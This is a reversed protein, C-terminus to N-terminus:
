PLMFKEIIEAVGDHNNDRTTVYNGHSKISEDANQMVVGIAAAEIMSIDNEADGAAITNGLPIGLHTCLATMANGKSVGAPIHELYEDCSFIREMKGEMWVVTEECFHQLAEEKKQGMVILKAPEEALVDLVNETIIVPMKLITGYRRIAPADHESIVCDQHYTQCPLGHRFAQDFIYRVFPLPITKKYISKKGAFDYIEGGNYAIAYCGKGDLGLTRSLACASSLPRGTAVVIKHGLSLAKQIANQNGATLEKRDTLLTGDLDLFLIRAKKEQKMFAELADDSESIWLDEEEPTLGLYARLTCAEDSFNWEDTYSFIEEFDITGNMYRERFNM